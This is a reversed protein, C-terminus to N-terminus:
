NNGSYIIQLEVVFVNDNPEDVATQTHSTSQKVPMIHGTM